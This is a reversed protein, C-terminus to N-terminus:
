FKVKSHQCINKIKLELDKNKEKPKLEDRAIFM